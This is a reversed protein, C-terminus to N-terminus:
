QIFIIDDGTIEGENSYNGSDRTSAASSQVSKYTQTMDDENITNTIIYCLDTPEEQQLLFNHNTPSDVVGKEISSPLRGSPFFIHKVYRQFPCVCLYALLALVTIGILIPVIIWISTDAPTTICQVPSFLGRKFEEYVQVKFCYVTSAELHKITFFPVTANYHVVQSESSNKWIILHYNWMFIDQFIGVEPDTVVLSLMKKKIIEATVNKPPGIITDAIPSYAVADSLTKNRNGSFASVRFFYSGYISLQSLDCECESTTINECGELVSWGKPDCVQHSWLIEVSFTVHPDLEYNWDWNLAHNHNFAHVRVNHPTPQDDSGKAENKFCSVPSFLGRKISLEAQVKLCYTAGRVLCSLTCFPVYTRYTKEENSNNQWVIIIYNLDDEEWLSRGLEADPASINIEVNGDIPNLTVATPPGIQATFSPTFLVVNSWPSTEELKEARVRVSHKRDFKNQDVIFNCTRSPINLCGNVSKWVVKRRQVEQYFVSFTVKDDEHNVDHWSWSVTLNNNVGSIQVKWPAELSDQGTVWLIVWALLLVIQYGLGPWAAM